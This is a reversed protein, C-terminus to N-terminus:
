QVPFNSQRQSRYLNSSLSTLSTSVAICVTVRSLSTLSASVAICIVTSLSPVSASVARRHLYSHVPFTRQRQSRPSAFLQPYPLYAPASHAAICIVTSLSPVRASVARRHLYSHIPFTRQRQSRPSAFLQPCPLYALASQAAICIVTSLSTVSASVACRHLYSHVPFNPQHQSHYLYSRNQNHWISKHNDSLRANRQFDSGKLTMTMIIVIMM